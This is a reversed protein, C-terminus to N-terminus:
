MQFALLLVLGEVIERWRGTPPPLYVDAREGLENLWVGLANVDTESTFLCVLEFNLFLSRLDLNASGALALKDDVVVGKAHVMSGAILKVHVGSRWLERLYRSRTFDALRHNSRRPMILTVQVGRMAALCLARQLSEDPVFYPTVAVIRKRARFLASLLLDHLPEGPTDPGSTIVQVRGTGAPEVEAKASMQIGTAFRWDAAFVQALQLVVPGELDFSLDVWRANGEFSEQALNRGGLWARSGDALALKRHNRLNTRGRFPRHLLPIFWAVQIGAARLERVRKRPYLFSGIGDLLLRVEVGRSAANQLQSFISRSTADDSVLYICLELSKRADTILSLLAQLATEGDAHFRTRNGGRAAPVAHSALLRQLGNAESGGEESVAHVVQQSLVPELKRKGLSLYLPIALWPLTLMFLLWGWTASPSRRARLIDVSLLVVLAGGLLTALHLSLYNM